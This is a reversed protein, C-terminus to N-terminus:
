LFKPVFYAVVTGILFGIALGWVLGDRVGKDYAKTIAEMWRKKVAQALEVQEQTPM